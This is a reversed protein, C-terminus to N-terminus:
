EGKAPLNKNKKQVIEEIEQIEKLEDLREFIGNIVKEEKMIQNKNKHLEWINELKRVNEKSCSM